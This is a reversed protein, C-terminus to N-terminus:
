QVIKKIEIKVEMGLAEVLKELTNLSPNAKGSEILRITRLGLGTIDALESQSVKLVDRREKILEHIKM